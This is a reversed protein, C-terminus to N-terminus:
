EGGTVQKQSAPLVSDHRGSYNSTPAPLSPFLVPSIVCGMLSTFPLSTWPSRSPMKPGPLVTTAWAGHWENNATLVTYGCQHPGLKYRKGPDGSTKGGIM